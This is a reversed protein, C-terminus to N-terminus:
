MGFVVHRDIYAFNLAVQRDLKMSKSFFCTSVGLLIYSMYFYKMQNYGAMLGFGFAEHNVYAM